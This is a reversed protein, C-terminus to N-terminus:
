NVADMFAFTLEDKLPLFKNNEWWGTNFYASDAKSSDILDLLRKKLDEKKTSDLKNIENRLVVDEGGVNIYHQIISYAMMEPSILKKMKVSLKWAEVLIEKIEDKYYFDPEKM